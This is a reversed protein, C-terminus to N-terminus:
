VSTASVPSEPRRLSVFDSDEKTSTPIRHQGRRPSFRSVPTTWVHQQGSRHQKIVFVALMITLVGLLVWNMWVLIELAHLAQCWAPADPVDLAVTACQSLNKGWLGTAFANCGLWFTSMLGLLVLQFAPTGSLATQWVVDLVLFLLALVATLASLCLHILGSFYSFGLPVNIRVSLGFIIISLIAILGHAAYVRHALSLFIM